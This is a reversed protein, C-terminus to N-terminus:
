QKPSQKSDLKSEENSSCTPKEEARGLVNLLNSLSWITVKM